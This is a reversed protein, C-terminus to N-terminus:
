NVNSLSILNVSFNVTILDVYLGLHFDTLRFSLKPTSRKFKSRLLEVRVLVYFEFHLKMFLEFNTLKFYIGWVM